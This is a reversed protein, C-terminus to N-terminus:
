SQSGPLCSPSFGFALAPLAAPQMARGLAYYAGVYILLFPVFTGAFPMLPLAYIFAMRNLSLAAAMDEDHRGRGWGVAAM